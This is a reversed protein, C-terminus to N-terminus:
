YTTHQVYPGPEYGLDSMLVFYSFFSNRRCNGILLNRAFVRFTFLAAMFFNRLFRYNSTSKLSYTGGSVYLILACTKLPALVVHIIHGSSEPMLARVKRSDGLKSRRSFRISLIWIITM